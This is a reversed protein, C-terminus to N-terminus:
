VCRSVIDNLLVTTTITALTLLVSNDQARVVSKYRRAAGRNLGASPRKRILSTSGNAVDSSWRDARDGLPDDTSRFAMFIHM